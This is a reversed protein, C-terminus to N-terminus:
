KRNWFFYQGTIPHKWQIKNPTILTGKLTIFDCKLCLYSSNFLLFSQKGKTTQKWRFPHSTSEIKCFHTHTKKNQYKWYGPLYTQLNYYTPLPSTLLSENNSSPTEQTFLSTLPLKNPQTSLISVHSM